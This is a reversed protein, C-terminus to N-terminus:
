SALISQRLANLRNKVSADLKNSDIDIVFGGILSPDVSYTFEATATGLQSQVLKNLRATEAEALPAASTIHVAYINNLERYLKRYALAIQRMSDIRGNQELLQVFRTLVDQGKPAIAAATELLATKRSDEVFPNAMTAQLQPLKDFAQEVNGMAEYVVKAVGKDSAFSYLAKAYRRPLLGKDM